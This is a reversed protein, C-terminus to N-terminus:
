HLRKEIQKRNGDLARAIEPKRITRLYNAAWALQDLTAATSMRYREIEEDLERSRREADTPPPPM